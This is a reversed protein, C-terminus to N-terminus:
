ARGRRTLGIGLLGLGFLGLTVPEPVQLDDFNADPALGQAGFDRASIVSGYSGARNTTM